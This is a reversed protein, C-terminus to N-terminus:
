RTIDANKIEKIIENTQINVIRAKVKELYNKYIKKKKARSM